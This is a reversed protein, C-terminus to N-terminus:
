DRRANEGPFYQLHIQEYYPTAEVVAAFSKRALVPAEEYVCEPDLCFEAWIRSLRTQQPFFVSHDHDAMAKAIPKQTPENM